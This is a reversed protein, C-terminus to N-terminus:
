RDSEPGAKDLHLHADILNAVQGPASTPGGHGADLCEVLRVAPVIKHIETAVDGYVPLSRSGHALTIPKKFTNLKAIDISLREPDRSQDLWTDANATMTARAREDFVDDWSGKGFAVNEVFYMTGQEVDGNELYAKAKQMATKIAKLAEAYEKKGKLIGFAPPEYVFLSAVLEPHENALAIAVSAGYSHGVVHVPGLGLKQILHVADTVDDSIHGQRAVDTSASHGRRDYLVLPNGDKRALEEAVPLWSHHDDWSGHIFLIPAGHGPFVRTALQVEGVDVRKLPATREIPSMGQSACGCGSLLFALALIIRVPASKM